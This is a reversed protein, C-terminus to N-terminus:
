EPIPVPPRHLRPLATVAWILLAAVGLVLVAASVAKDIAQAVVMMPLLKVAVSGGLARVSASYALATTIGDAPAEDAVLADMDGEFATQSVGALFQAILVSVAHMPAGIWGVLMAVGWLSWRLVAPLKMTGIAEVAVTALLCGLSFAIAAGAVWRRGHLETTLPIALLTPGSALLMIGGGAVLLRPSVALRRRPRRAPNRRHGTIGTGGTLTSVAYRLVRAPMIRRAAGRPTMRARRSSIITPVLSGAYAVFILILPWGTPHGDPGAPLLAGLGTGAAEVAAIALAYRTMSRPRADVAAVEARMAAFGVWAAVHMATVTIAILWSPLGAILGALAGVRLLIETGAAGRLLTRGAYRRSLWGTVPASLVVGILMAANYLAAEALGGRSVALLVLITWGLAMGFSDIVGSVVLERVRGARRLGVPGVRRHGGGRPERRKRDTVVPPEPGSWSM